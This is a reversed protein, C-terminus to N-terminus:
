DLCDTPQPDPESATFILARRWGRVYTIATADGDEDCISQNEVPLIGGTPPVAQSTEIAPASKEMIASDTDVAQSSGMIGSQRTCLSDPGSSSCVPHHSFLEIPPQSSVTFATPSQSPGLPGASQDRHLGSAFKSLHVANQLRVLHRVQHSADSILIM